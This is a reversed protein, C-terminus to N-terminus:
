PCISLCFAICILLQDLIYRVKAMKINDVDTLFPMLPKEGVVKMATGLAQYSAERVDPTTDNITQLFIYLLFTSVKIHRVLYM